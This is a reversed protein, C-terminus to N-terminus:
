SEHGEVYFLIDEIETRAKQEADADNNQQAEGLATLATQMDRRDVEGLRGLCFRARDVLEDAEVTTSPAAPEDHPQANGTMMELKPLDPLSGFLASIKERYAAITKDDIAKLAGELVVSKSLGTHQEIATVTLLGDIDLNMNLLIPSLSEADEDLDEVMFDGVYVNQRCDESEGQFINVQVQEQGPVATYFVQGRKAPLPTGAKIVPVFLNPGYEGNVMGLCSTGFTYPTVDVLIRHSKIGSLRAAMVGAGSAVALEPNIDHRPRCHLEAELMDGIAPIRTSGGVMIVEDLKDASLKSQTLVHRVSTMTKELLQECLNELDRRTIQMTIDLPKGEETPIGTEALTAAAQNSLDIKLQECALKMRNIGVTSLTGSDKHDKKFQEIVHNFLLDDIDDGGLQNDGHSALVEVIDGSIKVLSVDFTGGGLDYVLVHRTKNTQGQEFALSAATPENLIRLVDLGALIGAERTAQRQADNFYAPVTIVAKEVPAGLEQEALMKLKRLIMASLEPPTYTKDGLRIQTSAGMLRKISRVTHDPRVCYQNRAPQGVLLNGAPDIGVCSPITKAGHEEVIHIQGDRIFAVESNTTGLDIGIIM